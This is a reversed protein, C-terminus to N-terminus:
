LLCFVTIFYSIVGQGESGGVATLSDPKAIEQVIVNISQIGSRVGM